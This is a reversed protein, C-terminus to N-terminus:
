KGSHSPSTFSNSFKISWRSFISKIADITLLICLRNPNSPYRMQSLSSPLHEGQALVRTRDGDPIQFRPQNMKKHAVPVLKSSKMSMSHSKLVQKAKPNSSLLQVLTTIQPVLKVSYVGCMKSIERSHPLLHTEVCHSPILYVTHKFTRHSVLMPQCWHDDTSGGFYLNTNKYTLTVYDQFSLIIPDRNTNRDKANKPQWEFTDSPTKTFDVDDIIYAKAAKNYLTVVKQQRLRNLIRQRIEPNKLERIDDNCIKLIIDWVNNASMVKRVPDVSLLM